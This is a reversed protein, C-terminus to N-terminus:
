EKFIWRKLWATISFYHSYNREMLEDFACREFHSYNSDSYHSRYHLKAPLHGERAKSSYHINVHYIRNSERPWGVYDAFAIYTNEDISGKKNKDKKVIDEWIRQQVSLGFRGKSYKVWLKDIKKIDSSPIEDVDIYSSRSKPMLGLVARVTEEDADKWAKAKLFDELQRYDGMAGQTLDYDAQSSTETVLEAIRELSKTEKTARRTPGRLSKKWHLIKRRIIPNSIVQPKLEDVIQQEAVKQSYGQNQLSELSKALADSLESLNYGIHIENGQITIYDGQIQENYTGGGMDTTRINVNKRADYLQRTTPSKREAKAGFFYFCCAVLFLIIGPLITSPNLNWLLIAGATAFSLSSFYYRWHDPFKNM